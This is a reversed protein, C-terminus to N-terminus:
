WSGSLMVPVSIHMLVHNIVENNTCIWTCIVVNVLHSTLLSTGWCTFDYRLSVM